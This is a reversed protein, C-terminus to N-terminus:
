RGRGRMCGPCMLGSDINQRMALEIAPVSHKRGCKACTVEVPKRNQSPPRRKSPRVKKLIKRDSVIQDKDMSLDDKFKNVFGPKTESVAAVTAPAKKVTKAKAKGKPKPDPKSEGGGALLQATEAVKGWDEAAMAMAMQKLLEKENM